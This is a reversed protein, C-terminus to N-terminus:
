GWRPRSAAGARWRAASAGNGLHLMIMNMESTRGAWCSRPGGPCTRTRPATSGTGASGTGSPSARDIAYTAAAQPLTAHFATDFVAVQPVDPLLERAVEIGALNAPNHLPALPDPGPDRGDVEDDVLM